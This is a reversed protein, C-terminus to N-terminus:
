FRGQDHYAVTGNDIMDCGRFMSCKFINIKMWVTADMPDQGQRPGLQILDSMKANSLLRPTRSNSIQTVIVLQNFVIESNFKQSTYARLVGAVRESHASLSVLCFRVEQYPTGRTILILIVRMNQM